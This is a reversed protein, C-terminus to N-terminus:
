QIYGLGRLEERKEKDSPLPQPTSVMKPALGEYTDITEIPCRSLFEETFISKLVKGQMDEAVPLGLLALVTPTIDIINAEGIICKKISDGSFIIVGNPMHD